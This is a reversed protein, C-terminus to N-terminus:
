RKKKTMLTQLVEKLKRTSCEPPLINEQSKNEQSHKIGGENGFSLKAPQLIGPQTKKKL